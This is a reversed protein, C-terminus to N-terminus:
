PILTRSLVLFINTIIVLPKLRCQCSGSRRHDLHGTLLARFVAHLQCVIRNIPIIPVGAASSTTALPIAASDAEKHGTKAKGKGKPNNPFSAAAALDSAPM